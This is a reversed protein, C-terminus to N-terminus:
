RAKTKFMQSIWETLRGVDPCSAHFKKKKIIDVQSMDSYKRQAAKSLDGGSSPTMRRNSLQDHVHAAANQLAETSQSASLGISAEGVLCRLDGTSRSTVLHGRDGGSEATADSASKSRRFAHKRQIKQQCRSLHKKQTSATQRTGENILPKTQSHDSDCDTIVVSSDKDIAVPSINRGADSIHTNVALPSSSLCDDSIHTNAPLPSSSLGADSSHTIIPLPAVGESPKVIGQTYERGCPAPKVPPEEACPSAYVLANKLDQYSCLDRDRRAKGQKRDLNRTRSGGSTSLLPRSAPPSIVCADAARLENHAELATKLELRAACSKKPSKRPRSLVDVLSKAPPLSFGHSKPAPTLLSDDLACRYATATNQEKKWGSKDRELVPQVSHAKLKTSVHDDINPSKTITQATHQISLEPMPPYTSSDISDFPVHELNPYASLDPCMNNSLGTINHTNGEHRTESISIDVAGYPLGAGTLSSLAYKPTSHLSPKLQNASTIPSGTQRIIPHRKPVDSNCWTQDETVAWISSLNGLNQAPDNTLHSLHAPLPSQQTINGLDPQKRLSGRVLEVHPTKTITFSRDGRLHCVPSGSLADESDARSSRSVQSVCGRDHAAPVLSGDFKQTVISGASPQTGQNILPSKSQESDGSIPQKGCPARPQSINHSGYDGPDNCSYKVPSEFQDATVSIQQEGCHAGPNLDNCDAGDKYSHQRRVCLKKGPSESLEEIALLPMGLDANHTHQETHLQPTLAPPPSMTMSDFGATTALTMPDTGLCGATTALTMPDTGLCGTTTALIMPDTRLCGATTPGSILGGATSTDGALSIHDKIPDTSQTSKSKPPQHRSRQVSRTVSYVLPTQAPHGPTASLCPQERSVHPDGIHDPDSSEPCETVSSVNRYSRAVAQEMDTVSNQNKEGACITASHILSDAHPASRGIDTPNHDAPIPTPRPRDTSNDNISRQIRVPRVVHDSTASPDSNRMSRGTSASKVARQSRQLKTRNIRPKAMKLEDYNIRPESPIPQEDRHISPKVPKPEDYHIRPKVPKPEDDHIRSKVPKTQDCHIRPKVPKLEDDHIRPKAPKPEDHHIRLERPKHEDHRSTVHEPVSMAAGNCRAHLKPDSRYLGRQYPVSQRSPLSSARVKYILDDMSQCHQLDQRQNKNTLIGVPISELDRTIPRKKSKSRRLKNLVTQSNSIKDNFTVRRIPVTSTYEKSKDGNNLTQMSRSRYFTDSWIERVQDQVLKLCNNDSANSSAFDSASKSRFIKGRRTDCIQNTIDRPKNTMDMPKNTIDRPRNSIDMPQYRGEYYNCEDSDFSVSKLKKFDANERCFKAQDELLSEKGELNGPKQLLLFRESKFTRGDDIANRIDSVSNTQRLSKRKRSPKNRSVDPCRPELDGVAVTSDLTFGHTHPQRDSAKHKFDISVSLPNRLLRQNHLLRQKETDSGVASQCLEM